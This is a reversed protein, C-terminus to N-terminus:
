GIKTKIGVVVTDKEYYAARYADVLMGDGKAKVFGEFSFPYIFVSFLLIAGAVIPTRYYLAMQKRIEQPSNTEEFYRRVPKDDNFNVEVFYKFSLALHKVASSKGVQRVRCQLLPKRKEEKSWGPLVADIKRELYGTAEIMITKHLFEPRFYSLFM